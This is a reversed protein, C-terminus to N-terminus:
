FTDVIGLEEFEKNISKQASLRLFCFGILFVVVSLFVFSNDSDDPAFINNEPQHITTAKTTVLSPHSNMTKMEFVQMQLKQIHEELMHNHAIVSDIDSQATDEKIKEMKAEIIAIQEKRQIEFVNQREPYSEPYSITM